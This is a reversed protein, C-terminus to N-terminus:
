ADTASLVEKEAGNILLASLRGSKYAGTDLNVRNPLIEVDEDPTHGHVIVKPHLHFHNLFASRIWILDEPNQRELPVDPRIGAHCFFFDGFEVSRPLSELLEMHSDPLARMLGDRTGLTSIESSFDARVGYSAATERGGFVAFLSEKEPDMLFDLMGADHNGALAIFRGDAAKRRVILDLVGKSDPGRDVYDGLLIIRWDQQQEAIQADIQGLLKELLDRRGHVDGIAYLRTGNPGRADIYHM